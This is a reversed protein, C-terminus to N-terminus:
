SSLTSKTNILAGNLTPPGMLYNGVRPAITVRYGFTGLAQVVTNFSPEIDETLSRILEEHMVGSPNGEKMLKNRRAKMVNALSLVLFNQSNDDDENFAVELYEPMEEILRKEIEKVIDFRVVGGIDKKQACIEKRPDAM